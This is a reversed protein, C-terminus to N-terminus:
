DAYFSLEVSFMRQGHKGSVRRLLVPFNAQWPLSLVRFLKVLSSPVSLSLPCSTSLLLSKQANAYVHLFACNM